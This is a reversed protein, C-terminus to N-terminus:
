VSLYYCYRWGIMMRGTQDRVLGADKPPWCRCFFYYDKSRCVVFFFSVRREKKEKERGLRRGRWLQTEKGCVFLLLSTGDEECATEKNAFSFNPPIKLGKWVRERKRKGWFLFLSDTAARSPGARYTASAIRKNADSVNRPLKKLQGM